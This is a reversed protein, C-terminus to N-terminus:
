TTPETASPTPLPGLASQTAEGVKALTNNIYNLVYPVLMPFSALRQEILQVAQQTERPLHALPGAQGKGFMKQRAEDIMLNMKDSHAKLQAQSEESDRAYAAMERQLIDDWTLASAPATDTASAM